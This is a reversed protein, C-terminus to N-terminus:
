GRGGVPQPRHDRVGEARARPRRGALARNGSRRDRQDLDLFRHFGARVAGPPPGAFRGDDMAATEAFQTPRDARASRVRASVYKLIKRPVFGLLPRALWTRRMM